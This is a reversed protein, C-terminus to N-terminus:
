TSSGWVLKGTKSLSFFSVVFRQHQRAVVQSDFLIRLSCNFDWQATQKYAHLFCECRRIISNTIASNFDCQEILNAYKLESTKRWVRLRIVWAKKNENLGSGPVSHRGSKQMSPHQKKNLDNHGWLGEM